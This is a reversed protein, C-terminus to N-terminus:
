SKQPPRPASESNRRLGLKYRLWLGSVTIITLVFALKATMAYISGNALDARGLEPPITKMYDAYPTTWDWTSLDAKSYYLTGNDKWFVWLNGSSDLRSSVQPFSLLKVYDPIEEIYIPSTSVRATSSM